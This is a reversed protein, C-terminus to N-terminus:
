LAGASRGALAGLASAFGLDLVGFGFGLIWFEFGLFGVVWFGFGESPLQPLGDKTPLKAQRKM